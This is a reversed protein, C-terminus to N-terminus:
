GLLARDIQGPKEKRLFHSPQYSEIRLFSDGVLFRGSSASFITALSTPNSGVPGFGTAKGSPSLRIKM